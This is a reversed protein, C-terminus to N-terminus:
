KDFKKFNNVFNEEESTTSKKETETSDNKIKKEQIETSGRYESEVLVDYLVEKIIGQMTRGVKNMSELKKWLKMEEDNKPSFYLQVKKYDYKSM